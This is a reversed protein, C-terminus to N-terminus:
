PQNFKSLFYIPRNLHSLSCDPPLSSSTSSCLLPHIPKPWHCIAIIPLYTLYNIISPRPPIFPSTTASRVCKDSTSAACFYCVRRLVKNAVYEVHTIRYSTHLDVSIRALVLSCIKQFQLVALIFTSASTLLLCWGCLM